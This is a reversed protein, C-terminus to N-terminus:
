PAKVSLVVSSFWNVPIAAIKVNGSSISTTSASSLSSASSSPWM